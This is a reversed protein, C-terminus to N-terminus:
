HPGIIGLRRQGAVYIQMNSLRAEPSGRSSWNIIGSFKVVYDRETYPESGFRDTSLRSRTPGSTSNPIQLWAAITRLKGKSM